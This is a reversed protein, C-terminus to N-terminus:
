RQDHLPTRVPGEHLHYRSWFGVFILAMVLAAIAVYLVPPCKHKGAIM